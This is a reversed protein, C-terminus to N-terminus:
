SRTIYEILNKFDQNVVEKKKKETAAASFKLHMPEEDRFLLEININQFPLPSINDEQHPAILCYKQCRVRWKKKEFIKEDSLHIVYGLELVKHKLHDLLYTVDNCNHELDILHIVFGRFSPLKLFDIASCQECHTNQATTYNQHIYHLLHNSCDSNRWRIYARQEDETRKLQQHYIPLSCSLSNDQLNFWKKIQQWWDM